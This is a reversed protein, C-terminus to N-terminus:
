DPTEEVPAGPRKNLFQSSTVIMTILSSFRGKKEVITQKMLDITSEDSLLLSRGLGFALLKRCLNDDFQEQQHHLSVGSLINGTQGPHIGVETANENFLGSIVNVKEKLPDLSKLCNGFEIDKGAGRAYWETQHVGNGM